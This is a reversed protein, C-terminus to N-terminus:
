ASSAAKLTGAGRALAPEVTTWFVDRNLPKRITGILNLGKTQAILEAGRVVAAHAGTVFVVPTRADCGALTEVLEIGDMDPMNLDCIILALSGNRRDLVNRAEHGNRASELAVGGRQLLLASTLAVQIPDDDVILVTIAM